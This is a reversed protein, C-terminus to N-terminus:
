QNRVCFYAPTKPNQFPRSLCPFLPFCCSTRVGLSRQKKRKFDEQVTRFSMQEKKSLAFGQSRNCVACDEVMCDACENQGKEETKPASLPKKNHRLLSFCHMVICSCRLRQSQSFPQRVQSQCDYM